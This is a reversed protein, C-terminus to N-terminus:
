WMSRCEKGVRREESRYYYSKIFNYPREYLQGEGSLTSQDMYRYLSLKLKGDYYTFPWLHQTYYASTTNGSEPIIFEKESYKDYIDKKQREPGSNDFPDNKVKNIEEAIEHYLTEITFAKPKSVEKKTAGRKKPAAEVSGVGWVGICGLLLAVAILRKMIKKGEKTLKHM